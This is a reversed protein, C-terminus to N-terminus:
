CLVSEFVCRPMCFYGSRKPTQGHIKGFTSILLENSMLARAAMKKKKKTSKDYCLDLTANSGDKPGTLLLIKNQIVMADEFINVVRNM